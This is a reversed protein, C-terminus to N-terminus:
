WCKCRYYPSSGLRVCAWGGGDCPSADCDDKCWYAHHSNCGWAGWCTDAQADEPMSLVVAGAMLVAAVWAVPLIAQKRVGDENAIFGGVVSRIRRLM